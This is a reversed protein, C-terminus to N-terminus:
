AMKPRGSRAAPAQDELAVRLVAVPEPGGDRTPEEQVVEVEVPEEVQGHARGPLRDARRREGPRDAHEGARAPGTARDRGPRHEGLARAAEAASGLRVVVEPGRQLLALAPGPRGPYGPRTVLGAWGFRTDGKWGNRCRANAVTHVPLKTELMPVQISVTTMPTYTM